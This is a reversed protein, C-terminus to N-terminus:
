SKVRNDKQNDPIKKRHKCAVSMTFGPIIDKYKKALGKVKIMIM